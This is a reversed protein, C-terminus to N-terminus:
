PDILHFASKDDNGLFGNSATREMVHSFEGAFDIVKHLVVVSLGARKHPYSSGFGDQGLDLTKTFPAYMSLSFSRLQQDVAALVMHLSNAGIDIAAVRV